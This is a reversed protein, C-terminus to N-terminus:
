IRFLNEQQPLLDYFYHMSDSRTVIGIIRGNEMVPLRGIDHKVMLRAAQMPSKDSTISIINTSMFAKVPANLQSEKKIKQFDRRSIVGVLKENETVPIGTCGKERLIRAVEEMRTDASVTFVPFSMLDSIQVSSRQNGAILETIWNEAVEPKVGKLMVSGAAPHGGGGMSRVIAGIDIDDVDSRGIVICRDRNKDAFIGFAAEVNVIERYIQVVVSLNDIHGDIDLKNISVSYGKIRKRKTKKLMEFLVDKQKEGYAQKLFSNLVKLDAKNELLWAAAYADEAKSSPFTLNGTDEYLGALFLTAQIPSINKKEKKLQRVMLTTTAGIEEQCIRDAVINTNNLHHDWLIIEIDDRNKLANLRGLRNWNNADVVILTKIENFDIQKSSYTKFVDKHISLFARVNPNVIKPLVAKADPYLVSAAILSALADFDTNKHTTIVRM